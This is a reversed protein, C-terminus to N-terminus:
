SKAKDYIQKSLWEKFKYIGSNSEAMYGGIM